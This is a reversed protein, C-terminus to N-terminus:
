KKRTYTTEMGLMEKGDPGQMYMKQVLTNPDKIETTMRFKMPTGDPAPGEMKETFLKGAKDFEGEVSYLAPSMSDVWTGTYKKKYPDYGNIGHGQFDMGMMKGKFDTVLFYGGVDIKATYTGTSESVEGDPTTCKIKADWNGALQKLAEHEPGPKPWAEQAAALSGVVLVLSLTMGHVLKM